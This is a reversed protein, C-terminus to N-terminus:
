GEIKFAATEWEGWLKEETMQRASVILTSGATVTAPLSVKVGAETLSSFNFVGSFLSPHPSAAPAVAASASSLSTDPVISSERQRHQSADNKKAGLSSGGSASAFSRIGALGVRPPMKPQQEVRVQVPASLAAESLSIGGSRITRGVHIARGGGNLEAEDGLHLSLVLPGATSFPVAIAQRRHFDELPETAPRVSVEYDCGPLLGRVIKTMTPTVLSRAPTATADLRQQYKLDWVTVTYKEASSGRCNREFMVEVSTEGVRLVVPAINMLTSCQVASPATQTALKSSSAILTPEPCCTCECLEAVAFATASFSTGPPLCRFEYSDIDLSVEAHRSMELEKKPSSYQQHSRRRGVAVAESPATVSNPSAGSPQKVDEEHQLLTLMIRGRGPKRECKTIPMHAIRLLISREHLSVVELTVPVIRMLLPPSDPGKSNYAYTPRVTLSVVGYELNKFAFTTAPPLVTEQGILLSSPSPATEVFFVGSAAPSGEGAAGHHSGSPVPGLTSDLAAHVPSSSSFSVNKVLGSFGTIANSNGQAAQSTAMTTPRPVRTATIEYKEVVTPALSKAKRILLQESATEDKRWELVIGRPLVSLMRLRLLSATTVTLPKSYKSWRNLVPDFVSVSVIYVKDRDLNDLRTRRTAARFYLDKFRKEATLSESAALITTTSRRGGQNLSFSTRRRMSARRMPSGMPSGPSSFSGNSALPSQGANSVLRRLTLPSAPDVTNGGPADTTTITEPDVIFEWEVHMRYERLAVEENFTRATSQQSDLTTSSLSPGNRDLGVSPSVGEWEIVADRFGLSEIRAELSINTAAGPKTTAIVELAKERRGAIVVEYEVPIAASPVAGPVFSGGPRAVPLLQQKLHFQANIAPTSSMAHPSNSQSAVAAAQHYFSDVCVTAGDLTSTVISSRGSWRGESDKANVSVRYNTDPMLQDFSAVGFPEFTFIKKQQDSLSTLPSHSSLGPTPKSSPESTWVASTTPSSPASATSDTEATNSLADDALGSFMGKNNGHSLSIALSPQQSLFVSPVQQLADAGWMLDGEDSFRSQPSVAGSTLPRSPQDRLSFPVTVTPPINKQGGPSPPSASALREVGIVIAVPEIMRIRRSALYQDAPVLTLSSSQHQYLHSNSAEQVLLIAPPRPTQYSIWLSSTGRQEVALHVTACTTVVIVDSRDSVLEVLRSKRHSSEEHMHADSKKTKAKHDDPVVFCVSLSYATAPKLGELQCGHERLDKEFPVKVTRSSQSSSSSSTEDSTGASVTSPAQAQITVNFHTPNPYAVSDVPLVFAYQLMHEELAPRWSSDGTPSSSSPPGSMQKVLQQALTSTSDPQYATYLSLDNKQVKMDCLGGAWTAEFLTSSLAPIATIKPLPRTMFRLLRQHWGSGAGSGTLYRWRLNLNYMTNPVLTDIFTSAVAPVPEHINCTICISKIERAARRKAAELEERSSYSERVAPWTLIEIDSIPLLFDPQLEAMSENLDDVELGGEGDQDDDGDNDKANLDDADLEIRRQPPKKSKKQAGDETDIGRYIVERGYGYKLHLTSTMVSCVRAGFYPQIYVDQLDSWDSWRSFVSSFCRVRVFYQKSVAQAADDSSHDGRSNFNTLKSLPNSDGTFTLRAHGSLHSCSSPATTAAGDRHSDTPHSPVDLPVQAWPGDKTRGVELEFRSAVRSGPPCPWGPFSFLVTVHDHYVYPQSLSLKPLLAQEVSVPDSVISQGSQGVGVGRVTLRVSQAHRPFDSLEVDVTPSSRSVVITRCSPASSSLSGSSSSAGGVDCVSVVQWSDPRGALGLPGEVIRITIHDEWVNLVRLEPREFKSSASMNTKQCCFVERNRFNFSPHIRISVVLDVM